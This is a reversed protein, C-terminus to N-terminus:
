GLRNRPSPPMPHLKYRLASGESRGQMKANSYILDKTPKKRFDSPSRQMPAALRPQSPGAARWAWLGLFKNNNAGLVRVGDVQEVRIKNGTGNV